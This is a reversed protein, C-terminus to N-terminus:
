PVPFRQGPEASVLVRVLLDNRREPLFTAGLAGYQIMPGIHVAMEVALCTSTDDRLGSARLGREAVRTATYEWRPLENLWIRARSEGWTLEKM